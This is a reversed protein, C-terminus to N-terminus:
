RRRGAAQCRTPYRGPPTGKAVKLADAATAGDGVVEIGDAHALMGVVGERFVPHDDIVAIRIPDPM